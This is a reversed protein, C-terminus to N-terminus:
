YRASCRDGFFVDCLPVRQFYFLSLRRVADFYLKWQVKFANRNWDIFFIYIKATGGVCMRRMHLVAFM